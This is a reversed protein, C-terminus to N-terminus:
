ECPAGGARPLDLKEFYATTAPNVQLGLNAYNRRFYTSQSRHNNADFINASHQALEHPAGMGRARPLGSAPALAPLMFPNRGQEHLAGAM